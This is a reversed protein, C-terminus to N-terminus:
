LVITPQATNHVEIQLRVIQQQVVRRIAESDLHCTPCEGRHRLLQVASGQMDATFGKADSSMKKSMCACKQTEEADVCM